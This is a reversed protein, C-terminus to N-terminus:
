VYQESPNFIPQNIDFIANPHSFLRNIYMALNIMCLKPNVNQTIKNQLTYLIKWIQILSPLATVHSLKIITDTMNTHYFLEKKQCNMYVIIDRILSALFQIFLILRQPTTKSVIHDIAKPLKQPDFSWCARLFNVTYQQYQILAEENPILSYFGLQYLNALQLAVDIKYRYTTILIQKLYSTKPQGFRIIECRSLITQLIKKQHNTVLIFCLNDNPEELLKLLSNSSHENLCDADFLIIITYSGYFSKYRVKPKIHQRIYDISYTDNKTNGIHDSFFFPNESFLQNKKYLINSNADKPIPQFLHIDPHSLWPPQQSPTNINKSILKKAFHIAHHRKGAMPPGCFLYSHHPKNRYELLKQIHTPSPQPLPIEM